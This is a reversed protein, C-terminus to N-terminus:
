RKRLWNYVIQPYFSISWAVFYIWGIVANVTVLPLNHVVGVRLYLSGLSCVVFLLSLIQATTMTTICM